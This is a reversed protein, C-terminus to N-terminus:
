ADLCHQFSHGSVCLSCNCHTICFPKVSELARLVSRLTEVWELAPQPQESQIVDHAIGVFVTYLFIFTESKSMPSPSWSRRGEIVWIEADQGMGRHINRFCEAELLHWRISIIYREMDLLLVNPVSFCLFLSHSLHDLVEVSLRHSLGRAATM